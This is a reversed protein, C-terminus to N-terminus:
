EHIHLHPSHGRLEKEPFLQKWNETDTRQLTFARTESSPGIATYLFDRGQLVPPEM